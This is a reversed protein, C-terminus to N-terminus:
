LTEGNGTGWWVSGLVGNSRNKKNLETHPQHLGLTTQWRFFVLLFIIDINKKRGLSTFVYQFSTYISIFLDMLIIGFCLQLQYSFYRWINKNNGNCCNCCDSFSCLFRSRKRTQPANPSPPNSFSNPRAQRTLLTSCVSHNFLNQNIKLNIWCFLITGDLFSSRINLVGGYCGINGTQRVVRLCHRKRRYSRAFGFCSSNNTNATQGRDIYVM